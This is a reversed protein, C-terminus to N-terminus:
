QLDPISYTGSEVYLVGIIDSAEIDIYPDLQQSGRRVRGGQKIYTGYEALNAFGHAYTRGAPTPVLSSHFPGVM